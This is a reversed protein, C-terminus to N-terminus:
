PSSLSLPFCRLLRLRFTGRRNPTSVQQAARYMYINNNCQPARCRESEAWYIQLWHVIKHMKNCLLCNPSRNSSNRYPMKCGTSSRRRVNCAIIWLFFLWHNGIHSSSSTCVYLLARVLPNEQRPNRTQLGNLLLVPHMIIFHFVENINNRVVNSKVFPQM